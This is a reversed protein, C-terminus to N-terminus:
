GYGWGGEDNVTSDGVLVIRLKKGPANTSGQAFIMPVVAIFIAAFILTIFRNQM